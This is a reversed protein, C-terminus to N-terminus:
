TVYINEKFRIIKNLFLGTEKHSHIQQIAALRRDAHTYYYFDQLFIVPIDWPPSPDIQIRVPGVGQVTSLSARCTDARGLGHRSTNLKLPAALSKVTGPRDPGIQGVWSAWHSKKSDM